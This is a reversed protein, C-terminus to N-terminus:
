LGEEIGDNDAHEQLYTRVYEAFAGDNAMLADYNGSESIRGNKLVFIRDVNPLYTLSHTVLM